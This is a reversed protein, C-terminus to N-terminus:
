ALMQRGRRCVANTADREADMSEPDVPIELPRILVPISLAPAKSNSWKQDTCRSIFAILFSM